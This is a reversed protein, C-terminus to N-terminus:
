TVRSHTSISQNPSTKHRLKHCAEEDVTPQRVIGGGEGWGEGKPLPLVWVASTRRRPTLSLPLKRKTFLGSNM